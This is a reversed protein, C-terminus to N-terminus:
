CAHNRQSWGQDRRLVPGASGVKENEVLEIEFWNWVMELDKVDCIGDFHSKIVM